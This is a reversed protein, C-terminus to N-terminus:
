RVYQCYLTLQFNEQEKYRNYTIFVIQIKSFLTNREKNKHTHPITEIFMCNLESVDGNIKWNESKTEIYNIEYDQGTMM